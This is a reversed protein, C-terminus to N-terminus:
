GEAVPYASRSYGVRGSVGARWNHDALDRVGIRALSSQRNRNKARPHKGCRCSRRREPWCGRLCSTGNTTTLQSLSLTRARHSDCVRCPLDVMGSVAVHVANQKGCLSQSVCRGSSPLDRQVTVSDVAM